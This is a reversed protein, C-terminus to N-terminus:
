YIYLANPWGGHGKARVVAAVEDLATCGVLLRRNRAHLAGFEIPIRRACRGHRPRVELTGLVKQAEVFLHKLELARHSQQKIHRALNAVELLVHVVAFYRGTLTTPEPAVVVM